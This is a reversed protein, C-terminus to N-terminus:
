PTASLRNVATQFFRFRASARCFGLWYIRGVLGVSYAYYAACGHIAMCYITPYTVSSHVFKDKKGDLEGSAIESLQALLEACGDRTEEDDLLVTLEYYIDEEYLPVPVIEHASLTATM